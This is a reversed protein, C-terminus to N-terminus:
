LAAVVRNAKKKGVAADHNAAPAPLVAKSVLSIHLFYEEGGYRKLPARGIM